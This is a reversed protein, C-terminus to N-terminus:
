TDCECMGGRCFFRVCVLPIPPRYIGLPPFIHIKVGKGISRIYFYM